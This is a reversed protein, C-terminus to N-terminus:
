RYEGTKAHIYEREYQKHEGLGIEPLKELIRVTDPGAALEDLLRIDFRMKRDDIGLLRKVNHSVYVPSYDDANIMLFADDLNKLLLGFLEERYLIETDKAALNKRNESIILLLLIACLPAVMVAAEPVAFYGVIAAIAAAAALIVIILKWKDKGKCM